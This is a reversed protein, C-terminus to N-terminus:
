FLGVNGFWVGNERFVLFLYIEICFGWWFGGKGCGVGEVFGCSYECLVMLFFFLLFCYCGFYVCGLNGFRVM